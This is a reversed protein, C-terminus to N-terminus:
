LGWGELSCTDRPGTLQSLGLPLCVHLSSGVPRDNLITTSAIPHGGQGIPTPALYPPLMFAFYASLLALGETLHITVDDPKNALVKSLHAELSHPTCDMKMTTTYSDGQKKM